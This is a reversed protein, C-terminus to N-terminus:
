RWVEARLEDLTPGLDTDPNALYTWLPDFVRSDRADFHALLAARAEDDRGARMLAHSLALPASQGWRFAEAAHHYHDLAEDLRGGREAAAGLFMAALYRTSPSHASSARDLFMTAEGDRGQLLAVRGLHVAADTFTPDLRLAGAYDDYAMRLWRFADPPIPMARPPPPGSLRGAVAAQIEDVLGQAYVKRADSEDKALQSWDAGRARLNAELDPAEYAHLLGAVTERWRIAYERTLGDRQIAATLLTAAAELHAAADASGHADGSTDVRRGSKVLRLCADTHLMAAATFDDAAWTSAPESARAVLQGGKDGLMRDVDGEAIREGHRYADILQRYSALDDAPQVRSTAGISTVVLAATIVCARM